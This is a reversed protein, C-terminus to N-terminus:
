WWKQLWPLIGDKRSVVASYLAEAKDKTIELSYRADEKRVITWNLEFTANRKSKDRHKKELGSFKLLTNLDHTYISNALSKNPFDYRKTQRAIRAKFACEVAYGILYYAGEHRENDLLVKAEGLRLRALKQLDSRNM